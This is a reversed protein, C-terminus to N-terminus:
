DRAREAALERVLDETVDLAQKRGAGMNIIYKNDVVLNPVNTLGLSVFRREAAAVERGIRPSGVTRLFTARDIGHGDVFDALEGPTNFVRNRDHIAHFLRDRNEAAVGHRELTRHAKAYLRNTESYAVHVRELVVGEPLGREWGDLLRELSRCHPCVYSFYAVVEVDGTGDPADLEIYREGEGFGGLGLAHYLGYGVVAAVLVGVAALIARRIQAVNDKRKVM